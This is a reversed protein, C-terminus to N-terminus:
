RGAADLREALERVAVTCAETDVCERLGTDEPGEGELPRLDEAPIGRLCVACVGTM